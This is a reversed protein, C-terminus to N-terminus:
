FRYFATLYAGDFKAKYLDGKRELETDLIRYGAGVNIGLAIDYVIFANIDTAKENGFDGGTSLEAGLGLGSLPLDFQARAYLLGMTSNIAGPNNIFPGTVEGSHLRATVGLDLSIWNDLIEYYATLDSHSADIENGGGLDNKLSTQVVKVNPVLPVPHEFTAFLVVNTDSGPDAADLATSTGGTVADGSIGTQWIYGGVDFGLLTASHANAVAMTALTAAIIQKKM